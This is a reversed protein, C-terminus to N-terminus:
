KSAKVKNNRESLLNEIELITNAKNNSTAYSKIKNELEGELNSISEDSMPDSLRIKKALMTLKDKLEANEEKSAFNEIELQLTNIYNRKKEINNEIHDIEHSGTDVAFDTTTFGIVVTCLLLASILVAIWTPLAFVFKFVMMIITSLVVYIIAIYILPIKYYKSMLNKGNDISRKWAFIVSGFAIIGFGYAIWFSFTLRSPIIFALINYVIFGFFIIIYPVKVNKM